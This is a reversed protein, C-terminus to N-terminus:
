EDSVGEPLDEAIYSKGSSSPGRIVASAIERDVDKAPYIIIREGGIVLYASSGTKDVFDPPLIVAHSAGTRFVKRKEVKVM